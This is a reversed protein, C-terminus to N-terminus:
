VRLESKMGIVKQKLEESKLGVVRVLPRHCGIALVDLVVTTAGTDAVSLAVAVGTMVALLRSRLVMVGCSRLLQVAVGKQERSIPQSAVVAGGSELLTVVELLTVEELPTVVELLTVQELPTVVELLTVVKLLTVEELPTVKWATSKWAVSDNGRTADGGRIADGTFGYLFIRIPTMLMATELKPKNFIDLYLVNVSSGTDVLVREVDFGMINITVMLAEFGRNPVSSLDEDTFM